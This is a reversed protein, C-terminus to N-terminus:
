KEDGKEIAPAVVFTNNSKNHSVVIAQDWKGLKTGSPARVDISLPPGDIKIEAQGFTETVESSTITCTQGVIEVHSDRSGDLIRYFRGTPILIAKALFLSIILSPGVWLLSYAGTQSQDFVLAGFLSIGWWCIAFISVAIMLPVEGLHFFKLVSSGVSGAVPSDATGPDTPLDPDIDVDFTEIGVLGLLVLIWYSMVILFFITIPLMPGTFAADLIESQM